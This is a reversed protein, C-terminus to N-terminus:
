DAGRSRRREGEDTEVAGVPPDRAELVDRAARRHRAGSPASAGGRADDDAGRDCAVATSCRASRRRGRDLVCCPAEARPSWVLQAHRVVALAAAPVAVV